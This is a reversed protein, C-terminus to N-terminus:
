EHGLKEAIRAIRSPFWTNLSQGLITCCKRKVWGGHMVRRTTDVRCFMTTHITKSPCPNLEHHLLPIREVGSCWWPDALVM